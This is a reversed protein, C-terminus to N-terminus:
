TGHSGVKDPLCHKDAHHATEDDDSRVPRAILLVLPLAMKEKIMTRAGITAEYAYGLSKWSTVTVDECDKLKGPTESPIRATMDVITPPEDVLTLLTHVEVKKRVTHALAEDLWPMKFPLEDTDLTM